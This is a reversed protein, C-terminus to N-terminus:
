LGFIRFLSFISVAPSLARSISDTVRTFTSRDVVVTDNPRLIPNNENNPSASLDVDIERNTITGNPNLQVLDVRRRRARSTFGGARLIAENLSTNPPVEIVGPNGVEGVVTVPISEPSINADALEASEDLFLVPAEPVIVRYGDQLAIDQRLDSEQLLRWLNVSIVTEPQNPNGAFRQVQISRVDAVQTIGGAIQIAQTVTPLGDTDELSVRYSGPRTVEGTVALTIPRAEFLRISVLPRRLIAAYERSIRASAQEITLGRVNVRNIFPMRLTGDALVEFEGSYEPSEFVEIQLRDGAGLIYDEIVVTSADIADVTDIVDVTDVADITDVTDVTEVTDVTDVPNITSTPPSPLTPGPQTSDLEDAHVPLAVSTCFALFGFGLIGTLLTHGKVRQRAKRLLTITPRVLFNDGSRIYQPQRM